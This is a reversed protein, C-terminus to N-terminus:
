SPRSAASSPSSQWRTEKRDTTRFTRTTRHLMRDNPGADSAVVGEAVAPAAAASAAQARMRGGGGGGFMGGFGGSSGGGGSGGSLLSNIVIGGLVARDEDELEVPASLAALM